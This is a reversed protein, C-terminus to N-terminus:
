LDGKGNSRLFAFLDQLDVDTLGELLREPMLSVPLAKMETIQTKPLDIEQGSLSRLRVVHSTQHTITGSLFQGDGTTVLYNVYGERIDANPDVIHLLLYDLDGRNYGTLDPGLDSGEGFLRHCTGCLATFLLKGSAVNGHSGVLLQELELIRRDKEASMAPIVDPWTKKVAATIGSDNLLLLRQAMEVSIDDARIQRTHLIMDLMAGAWEPRSALLEQSAARVAPDARLRDPYWRAVVSGIEPDPYRQLSLLAAQRLAPSSSNSEVVELLTSVAAPYRTQGLSRVLALKESRDTEASAIALRAKEFAQAHGQRLAWVLPNEGVELQYRQALAALQPPLGTMPRGQLGESLGTLLPRAADPSPAAEMLATAAQLDAPTGGMIYRQMLRGLLERRVIPVSWSVRGEFLKVVELPAKGAQAELAWWILLSNHIDANDSESRILAEIVPLAIAVPFRKASSAYQSRVEPHPESGARAALDGATGPGAAGRDGLLRVSWMRVFPDAHHLGASAVEDDFGDSLHIAWLAELAIQGTHERLIQRLKPVVGTDKRDGFQRLAQQRHWRNPHELIGILEDNSLRSFDPIPSTDPTKGRLRYIRGSARHWTDRPDVHSLRSDYWDALYVGGDPGVKIDVPRFWHDPSELIRERDKNAFTSGATKFESVQLFNHLPNIGILVDDYRQPLGKGGYRIFAHTFRLRDGELDMHPFFGFSYPNTLAGHKGWNKVYYAGQKYHQGRSGAGNHGSYIRGKDDIEVHFTNGGGEAFLEFVESEPHYRWICQGKFRVNKTVSSSINATTTSGQAGYLWGDPGWRLSNAVAHTDELGFGSLHVVPDGDPFCDGDPDPYALLYPPNLVWIRGRGWTVGTAINLGSIADTARDLRGDGDTDELLTVKDAGRTGAPPPAPTKDFQARLHYDYGTVKLGAPFPYQDYQIVWLRGRHDFNIEVPQRVLPESALLDLALDAPYLFDQLAQEPPTPQSDDSQAGRGEFAAMYNAVEKTAAIPAPEDDLPGPGAGCGQCLIFVTISFPIRFPM